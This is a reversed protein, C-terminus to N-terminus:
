KSNTPNSVKEIMAGTIKGLAELDYFMINCSLLETENEYNGNRVKERIKKVNEDIQKRINRLKDIKKNKASEYIVSFLSQYGETLQAVNYCPLGKFILDWGESVREDSM